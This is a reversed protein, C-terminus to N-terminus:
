KKLEGYHKRYKKMIKIANDSKDGLIGKYMMIVEDSTPLRKLKSAALKQKQALWRAALAVSINPNNLDKQKIDKFVFDKTEGNLDQLIKLTDKTVQTLGLANKNKANPNFSSETAILAKLSDPDLKPNLSLKSNFYDTM